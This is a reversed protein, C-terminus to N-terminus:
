NFTYTRLPDFGFPLSWDPLKFIPLPPFLEDLSVANRNELESQIRKLELLDIEPIEDPEDSHDNWLNKMEHEIDAKNFGPDPNKQGGVSPENLEERAKKLENEDYRSSAKNVPTSPENLEERTKKLENEDYRSSAANAPKSPESPISKRSYNKAHKVAWEYAQRIRQYLEADDEPRCTKLKKAFAKKIESVDSTEEIGLLDWYSM